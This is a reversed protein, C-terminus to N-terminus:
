VCCTGKVKALILTPVHHYYAPSKKKKWISVNEKENRPKKMKKKKLLLFFPTKKKWQRFVSSQPFDQIEMFSPAAKPPKKWPKKELKRSIKLLPHTSLNKKKRNFNTDTTKAKFFSYIFFCMWFHVFRFTITTPPTNHPKLYMKLKYNYDPYLISIFSTKAIM